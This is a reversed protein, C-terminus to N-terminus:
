ILLEIKELLLLHVNIKLMINVLIKRQLQPTCRGREITRIRTVKMKQEAKVDKKPDKWIFFKLDTTFYAHRKRPKASNSHKKLLAGACLFNKIKTPLETVLLKDERKDGFIERASKKGLKAPRFSSVFAKTAQTEDRNIADIVSQAAICLDDNNANEDRMQNMAEIVGQNKLHDKSAQTSYAINELAHCARILVSSEQRHARMGDLMSNVIPTEDVKSSAELHVCINSVFVFAHSIVPVNMKHTQIAQATLSLSKNVMYAANESSRCIGGLAALCENVLHPDTIGTSFLDFILATVNSEIEIKRASKASYALRAICVLGSSKIYQNTEHTSLSTIITSVIGSAVLRKLNDNHTTLVTILRLGKDCLNEDYGLKELSSMVVKQCDQKVMMIANNKERALTWLCGFSAITLRLNSDYTYVGEIIAQVAGEASMIQMTNSDAAAAFNTLVRIAVDVIDLNENHVTMGAVISQVGGARVIQSVNASNFALNGLTRFCSILLDHNDFNNLVVDSIATAGGFKIIETKNHDNGYCLNCLVCITSDLLEENETYTAVISVLLDIGNADVIYKNNAKHQFSLNALAYTSNEVLSENGAYMDIIQVILSVGGEMGIMSKLEEDLALNGLLYCGYKLFNENKINKRMSAILAKITDLTALQSAIKDKNSLKGLLRAAQTLLDADTSNCIIKMLAKFPDGKLLSELIHGKLKLKSCAAIAKALQKPDFNEEFDDSANIISCLAAVIEPNNVHSSLDEGAADLMNLLCDSAEIFTGEDEQEALLDALTHLGGTKLLVAANAPNQVLGSLEHLQALSSSDNSSAQASNLANEKAIRILEEEYERKARLTELLSTAAEKITDNNPYIEMTYAALAEADIEPDILMTQVSELSSLSDLVVVDIEIVAENEYHERITDILLPIAGKDFILQAIEESILLKALNSICGLVIDANGSYRSYTSIILDIINADILQQFGDENDVLNSIFELSRLVAHEDDNNVNLNEVTLIVAGLDVMHKKIEDSVCLQNLSAIVNALVIHDASDSTAISILASIVDDTVMKEHLEPYESCLKAIKTTALLLEYNDPQALCSQCLKKLGNNNVIVACVNGGYTEDLALRVLGNAGDVISQSSQENLEDIQIIANVLAETAGAHYLLEINDVAISLNGIKSINTHLVNNFVVSQGQTKINDTITVLSAIATKIQNEKNNGNIANLVTTGHNRLEENDPFNDITELIVNQVDADIIYQINDNNQALALYVDFVGAVLKENDKQIKLINLTAEIGGIKVIKAQHEATNCFRSLASMGYRAIIEDNPYKRLLDIILEDAKTNFLYNIMNEHKGSRSFFEMAARAIRISDPNNKLANLVADIAGCKKLYDCNAPRTLMASLAYIGACLIDENNLHTKMSTIIAKVGGHKMIAYIKKEGHALRQLSLLAQISIKASQESTDNNCAHLADIIWEIGDNKFYYEINDEVLAFTAMKSMANALDASLTSPNVKLVDAADNIDTLNTLCNAGLGLVEENEAHHELASVLVEVCGMSKIQVAAATNLSLNGVLGISYKVDDNEGYSAISEILSALCPMEMIEARHREYNSISNLVKAAYTNIAKSNNNEVVHSIASIIGNNVYTDVNNEIVLLKDLVDLTTVITDEEVHKKLSHIIHKQDFKDQILSALRENKSFSSLTGFVARQIKENYPNLKLVRELVEITGEDIMEEVALEDVALNKLCDVSYEVMKTFKPNSKLSTLLQKITSKNRSIKRAARRNKTLRGLSKIKEDISSFNQNKNVKKLQFNSM